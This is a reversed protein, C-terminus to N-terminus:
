RGCIGSVNGHHSIVSIALFEGANFYSIFLLSFLTADGLTNPEARGVPEVFVFGHTAEFFSAVLRLLLARSVRCARM